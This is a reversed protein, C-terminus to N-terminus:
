LGFPGHDGNATGFAFQLIKCVLADDLLNIPSKCGLRRHQGMCVAVHRQLLLEVLARVEQALSRRSADTGADGTAPLDDLKDMLHQLVRVVGADWLIQVSADDTALNTVSEISLELTAMGTEPGWLALVRALVPALGSDLLMIKNAPHHTMNRLGYLVAPPLWTITALREGRVAHDLVKVITELAVKKAVAGRPFISDEGSGTLNALALTCRAITAEMEVPLPEDAVELAPYLVDEVFGHAILAKSAEPCRSLHSIVGFSHLKFRKSAAKLADMSGPVMVFLQACRLCNAALNNVLRVADVDTELRQVIADLLGPLEAISQCVKESMVAASQGDTNAAAQAIARLAANSSGENQVARHGGATLTGNHACTCLGVGASPCLARARRRAACLAPVSRMCCVCWSGCALARFAAYRSLSELAMPTDVLELKSEVGRISRFLAGNILMDIRGAAIQLAIDRVISAPAAAMSTSNHRARPEVTCLRVGSRSSVRRHVLIGLNYWEQVASFVKCGM